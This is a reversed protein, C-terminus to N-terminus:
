RGPLQRAEPAKEAVDHPFAKAVSIRSGVDFHRANAPRQRLRQGLVFDIRQQLRRIGVLGQTVAIAGHEFEQIRSAEPDGLQDVEFLRLHIEVLADQADDPSSAWRQSRSKM